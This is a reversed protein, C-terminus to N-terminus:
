EIPPRIARPSATLCGSRTRELTSMPAVASWQNSGPDYAEVSALASNDGALGGVAYLKGRVATLTFDGRVTSMPAVAAWSNTQPDFVEVSSLRAGGLQTGGAAYIKGGLAAVGLVVCRTHTQVLKPKKRCKPSTEYWIQGCFACNQLLNIGGEGGRM